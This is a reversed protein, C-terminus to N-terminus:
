KLNGATNDYINSSPASKWIRVGAKLRRSILDEISTQEGTSLTKKSWRLEVNNMQIYCFFTGHEANYTNLEATTNFTKNDSYGYQTLYRDLSTMDDGNLNIISILFNNKIIQSLGSLSVPQYTTPTYVSAQLDAKNRLETKRQASTVATGISTGASGIMDADGTILGVAGKVLGGIAGKATEQNAKLVEVSSLYNTIDIGQNASVAQTPKIWESGRVVTEPFVGYGGANDGKYYRSYAYPRGNWTPDTILDIEARTYSSPDNIDTWKFIKAEGSTRSALKLGAYLYMTKPNHITTGSPMSDNLSIEQSHGLGDISTQYGTQENIGVYTDPVMYNAIIADHVGLKVFRAEIDLWDSATINGETLGEADDPAIYYIGIGSYKFTSQFLSPLYGYQFHYLTSPAGHVDPFVQETQIIKGQDDYTYQEVAGSANKVSKFSLSSAILHFTEGNSMSPFGSAGSVLTTEMRHSPSWPEPLLNTEDNKAPTLRASVGSIDFSYDTNDPDFVGFSLFPNLELQLQAVEPNLMEYSIVDYINGWLGVFRTKAATTSNIKLKVTPRLDNQNNLVVFDSIETYTSNTYLLSTSEPLNTYDFNTGTIITILAM